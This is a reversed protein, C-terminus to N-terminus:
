THCEPPGKEDPTGWTEFWENVEDLTLHRGTRKYEAWSLLAERKFREAAEARTVYDSIAEQMLAHPSRQQAEAMSQVRAKLADDIKVSVAM